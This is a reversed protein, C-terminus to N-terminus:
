PDSLPLLPFNVGRGGFEVLQDAAGHAELVKGTQDRVFRFLELVAAEKRAARWRRAAELNAGPGAGLGALITYTLASHKLAAPQFAEMGPAAAALIFTGGTRAVGQVAGRYAFPDRAQSGFEPALGSYCMDLIVVRSQAKIESLHDALEDASLGERQGDRWTIQEGAPQFGHPLFYCRQYGALEEPLLGGKEREQFGHGSLFVVVVDEPGAKARIEDLRALIDTKTAESDKLVRHYALQGFPPRSRRSFLDAVAQANKPAYELKVLTRVRSADYDGVGVALVFFRPRASPAPKGLPFSVPESEWFGDRRACHVEAFDGGEQPMVTFHWTSVETAPPGEEQPWSRVGRYRLWPRVAGAGREEVEVTVRVAARRDGGAPEKSIIRILPPQQTGVKVEPLPRRDDFLDTALGSRDLALFFRDLPLYDPLAEASGKPERERPFEVRFLVKERGALTGDFLGEPTVALWDQGSRFSTLRGLESGTALDWARTTFDASTTLLQRGDARFAISLIGNDHGRLVRLRLRSSTEWVIVTGDTSGSAIYRGDRSFAVADVYWRHGDADAGGKGPLGQLPRIRKGQDADWLILEAWIANQADGGGGTLVLKGDPSFAVSRVQDNGGDGQMQRLQRGTATDWLFAATGDCTLARKGDGSLAVATVEYRHPGLLLPEQSGDKRWLAAMGDQSGTLLRSGDPSFTVASVAGVHSFARKGGSGLDCLLADGSLTDGGGVTVLWRNDPSYALDAISTSQSDSRRGRRKEGTVADWVILGEQGFGGTALTAGDTAWAAGSPMHEAFPAKFSTPEGWAQADWVAVIGRESLALLQRGDRSFKVTTVGSPNGEAPHAAVRPLDSEQLGVVRAGTQADWLLAAGDEFSVM